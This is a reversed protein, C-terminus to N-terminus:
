ASNHRAASFGYIAHAREKFASAMRGFASDFVPRLMMALLKSKFEFDIFFYVDCGGDATTECRWSNTLHKFPGSVYEVDIRHSRPRLDVRSRFTERIMKYSVVLDALFSQAGGEGEDLKERAIVNVAVCWPLFEPYREINSILGFMEDASYPMHYVEKHGPM